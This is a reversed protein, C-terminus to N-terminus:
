SVCVDEKKFFEGQVTWEDLGGLRDVLWGTAAQDIRIAYSINAIIGRYKFTTQMIGILRGDATFLPGGEGHNPLPQDLEITCFHRYVRATAFVPTKGDPAFFFVPMKVASQGEPFLLRVPKIPPKVSEVCGGENIGVNFPNDGLVMFDLRSDLTKYSYFTKQYGPITGTLGFYNEPGATVAYAFHACTLIHRPVVVGLGECGDLNLRAVYRQMDQISVM